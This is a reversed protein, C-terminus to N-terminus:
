CHSPPPPRAPIHRPLPHKAERPSGLDTAADVGVRGAIGERLEGADCSASAPRCQGREAAVRHRNRDTLERLVAEYQLRFQRRVPADAEVVRRGVEQAAEVDLRGVLDDLDGASEPAEAVWRNATGPDRSNGEGERRRRIDAARIQRIGSRGEIGIGALRTGEAQGCHIVATSPMM